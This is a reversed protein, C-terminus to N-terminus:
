RRPPLATPPTALRPDLRRAESLEAAAEQVRGTRGLAVGLDYRIAAEDLGPDKLAERYEAIAPELQNADVLAGALAYHYGPTDPGDPQLRIAERFEDAAEGPRHLEVLAVGRNAHFTASRPELAIASRYADAADAYRGARALAMGLNGRAAADSPKTSVAASLERISEDNQGSRLLAVGLNNMAIAYGPNARLAEKFHAVAEPITATSALDMEGLNNHCLWCDPNRAITARYLTDADAYTGSQRWTLVALVALLAMGAATAARRDIKWRDIASAAGAAALAIVGASAVYQFHDAVFSFQFPFVNLFGLAPFLTGAFFLFAALPARTRTRLLWLGGTLVVVAAPFLHAWWVGQSIHWRPYIFTLHVPWVLTWLYFWIARSAILCREVFTFDFAVGQAGILTREFVASGIGVAAGTVFFLGLPRVDRRWDLRGRKWWFVVLLAAPLTATVAKALIALLFLGFSVAYSRTSREEDFHLYALASAMYFAGSLTNKLETMWAVSEVHVPHLAFIAGALAAGPVGLRRLILVLLFASTAHLAINVAHYGTFWAGWLQYQLWFASHAVPYYQATAGIHLWIDRLGALSRLHPPTLHFDDDWLM